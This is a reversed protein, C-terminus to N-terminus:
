GSKREPVWCTDGVLMLERYMLLRFLVWFFLTRPPLTNHCVDGPTRLPTIDGGVGHNETLPLPEHRPSPPPARMKVLSVQVLIDQCFYSSVPRRGHNRGIELTRLCRRWWFFHM